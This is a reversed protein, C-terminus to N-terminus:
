SFHEGKKDINEEVNDGYPIEFIDEDEIKPLNLVNTFGEYLGTAALGSVAGTTISMLDVVGTTWINAVIGTIACIFPIFANVQKNKFTHKIIYGLTLCAIVIIPSILTTIQEFDFTM